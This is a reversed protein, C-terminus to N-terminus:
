LGVAGTAVTLNRTAAESQRDYVRDTHTPGGPLRGDHRYRVEIGDPEIQDILRDWLTEVPGEFIQSPDVKALHWSGHLLETALQGPGWGAYGMYLHLKDEPTRRALLQDLVHRDSSFYLADTIALAKSRPVSQRTLLFFRTFSLPGGFFVPKDVASDDDGLDPLADGLRVDLKRNVVLGQTGETDSNLLLIVSHRFFMDDLARSAILFLGATPKADQPAAPASTEPNSPEPTAAYGARAGLVTVLCALAVLTGIVAYGSRDAAARTRCRVAPGRAFQPKGPNPLEFEERGSECGTVLLM